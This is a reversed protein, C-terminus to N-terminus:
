QQQFEHILYARYWDAMKKFVKDAEIQFNELNSDTNYWELLVLAYYKGCHEKTSYALPKRTKDKDRNLVMLFVQLEKENQYEYVKALLRPERLHLIYVDENVMPNKAVLFKPPKM